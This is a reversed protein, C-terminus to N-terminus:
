LSLRNFNRPLHRLHIFLATHFTYSISLVHAGQFLVAAAQSWGIKEM